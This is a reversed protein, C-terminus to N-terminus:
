ARLISRPTHGFYRRMRNTLHAQDVFGLRAAAADPTIGAQLLNRADQLRRMLHYRAPPAGFATKFAARVRHPTTNTVRALETLTPCRQMDAMLADRVRRALGM